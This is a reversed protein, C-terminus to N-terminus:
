GQQQKLHQEILVLQQYIGNEMPPQFLTENTRVNVQFQVVKSVQGQESTHNHAEAVIVFDSEVDAHMKQLLKELQQYEQDSMLNNM